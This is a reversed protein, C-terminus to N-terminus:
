AHSPFGHVRPYMSLKLLLWKIVFPQDDDVPADRESETIMNHMIVCGNMVDWMQSESWTLAPYRVVAFHQQLVVFAREVDKRAAEQCTAFYADMKSDLAPITKVCTACTPYIGDALYYGKDYAHGNVKFNVTPAQGEALRVFVPSRQLVNIDSHTGAIAFFARQQQWRRLFSLASVKIGRTCGKGLLLVIRGVWHMYDISGLM